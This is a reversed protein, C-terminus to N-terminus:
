RRALITEERQEFILKIGAKFVRFNGYRFMSRFFQSILYKPSFYFSKFAFQIRERLEDPTFIGIGREKDCPIFMENEEIKGAKFADEWLKSGKLLSFSYFFAFDLNLKKAFKISDDIHDDTECPAGLIFNGITLFGTKKSLKVAEKVKKLTIKKNYYDLIEQNGSEIGFELSKVGAKKMKKFLEKDADTVRIGAIWIDLDLNKEILADMIKYAREKNMLFNDDVAFVTDFEKSIEELEKVVNEASRLRCRKFISKSVCFRCNFPCGRTTMISTIKGRALATVGTLAEKGYNYNKILHWSPFDLSDLDEIEIAPLGKKIVGMERYFIGNVQSLKKKGDLANVIELIVKEGDGIVSIDAKIENLAENKQITCHPGGIIVKINPNFSKILDTIKAASTAIQSTVTMGVIDIKSLARKL